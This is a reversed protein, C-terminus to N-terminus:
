VKSYPPEEQGLPQHLLTTVPLLQEHGSVVGLELILPCNSAGDHTTKLRRFFHATLFLVTIYMYVSSYVLVFQASLKHKMRCEQMMM